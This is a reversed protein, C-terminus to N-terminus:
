LNTVSDRWCLLHHALMEIEINLERAFLMLKHHSDFNSIATIEDIDWDLSKVIIIYYTTAPRPLGALVNDVMVELVGKPWLQDVYDQMEEYDLQGHINTDLYEVWYAHIRLQGLFLSDHKM